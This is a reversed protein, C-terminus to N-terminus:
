NKDNDITMNFDSIKLINEKSIDKIIMRLTSIVEEKTEANFNPESFGLLKDNEYYVEIIEVWPEGGNKHSRDLLRYNWTM